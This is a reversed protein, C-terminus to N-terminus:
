PVPRMRRTESGLMILLSLICYSQVLRHIQEEGVKYINQIALHMKEPPIASFVFLVSVEFLNHM